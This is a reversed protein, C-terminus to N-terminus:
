HLVPNERPLPIEQVKHHGIQMEVRQLLWHKPVSLIFDMADIPPMIGTHKDDEYGWQAFLSLARKSNPIIAYPIDNWFVLLVDYKENLRYRM